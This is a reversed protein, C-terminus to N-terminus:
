VREALYYLWSDTSPPHTGLIERCDGDQMSFLRLGCAELQEKQFGPAVYMLPVTYSEGGDPFFAWGRRLIADTNRNKVLNRIRLNRKTRKALRYVSELPKGVNLPPMPWSGRFPVSYLNHASFSFIGGPRLVRRVERLVQERDSPEICDLGNFSFLVFDMSGSPIMDLCRADATQIRDAFAPCNQRAQEVMAPAYDIGLYSGAAPAFHRTTRGAGIGLDLMSWRKLDAAYLTLLRAEPAFLDGAKAYQQAASNWHELNRAAALTPTSASM